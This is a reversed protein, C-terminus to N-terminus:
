CTAIGGVGYPENRFTSAAMLLMNGNSLSQMAQNMMPTFVKWQYFARVVIIDCPGGIVYTLKTPDFVGNTVPYVTSSQSFQPLIRADVSLNATCTSSMWVMDSCIAAKFSTQTSATQGQQLQGTRIERAATNTANELTTATMFILGIELSGCLLAFFPLALLAFEVATAGRRALRFRNAFGRLRGIVTQRALM